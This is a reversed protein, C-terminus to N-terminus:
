ANLIAALHRHLGEELKGKGGISDEYFLVRFGAVDFPLRTGKRALLITPKQLAFAYGVEFYVNPNYSDNPESPTIDAIILQARGIDRVIDAIILGPGAVEDARVINLEYKGCVSKIVDKYVDEYRGGFQMVIFAMPLRADVHFNRITAKHRGKCFIGVQRARGSPTTVQASAVAIGDIHLTVTSGSFSAQLRYTRGALLSMRSGGGRYDFWTGGPKNPAAFERIAFMEATTGGLGANLLHQQGPEYMVSIECISEDTVKEFEVEAFVEGDGDLVKNSLALGHVGVEVMKGGAPENRDPVLTVGGPFVLEKDSVDFTGMVPIWSIKEEEKEEVM